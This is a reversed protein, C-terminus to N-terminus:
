GTELLKEKLVLHHRDERRQTVMYGHMTLAIEKKINEPLVQKKKQEQQERLSNLERTASFLSSSSSGQISINLARGDLKDNTSKGFYKMIDM